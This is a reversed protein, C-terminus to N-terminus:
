PDGAARLIRRHGPLIPAPLHVLVLDIERPGFGAMEWDLVAVPTFEDYIINGIRADGWSLVDPGPDAPWHEELWEFSRDIIPIRFGDDLLAWQYYQRQGEVHARLADGAPVLWGFAAARTTSRTCSPWCRSAAVSCTPASSPPRIM